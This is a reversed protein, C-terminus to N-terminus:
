KVKGPQSAGFEWPSVGGGAWRCCFLLGVVGVVEGVSLSVWLKWFWTTVSAEMAESDLGLAEVGLGPCPGGSSKILVAVGM